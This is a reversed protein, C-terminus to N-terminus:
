DAFTSTMPSLAQQCVRCTAGSLRWLASFTVLLPVVVLAAVLKPCNLFSATNVGMVEMADIHEKQRMGGIEASM